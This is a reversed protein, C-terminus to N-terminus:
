FSSGAKPRPLVRGHTALAEDLRQRADPDQLVALKRDWEAALKRFIERQSPTLNPNSSLPGTRLTKDRPM